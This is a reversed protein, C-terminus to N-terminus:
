DHSYRYHTRGFATALAEDDHPTVIWHVHNSMLAYGPITLGTDRANQAVLRLYVSRDDDTDFVTARQNGRQTIHHACDAVVIRRCRPM